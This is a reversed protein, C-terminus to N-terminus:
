LCPITAFIDVQICIQDSTRQVALNNGVREVRPRSQRRTIMAGRNTLLRLVLGRNSLGDFCPM